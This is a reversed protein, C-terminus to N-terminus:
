NIPTPEFQGLDIAWWGYSENGAVCSVVDFPGPMHVEDGDADFWNTIPVIVGDDTIAVAELVNIAVINM